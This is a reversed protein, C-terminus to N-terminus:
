HSNSSSSSSTYMGIYDTGLRELCKDVAHFVHKRSLGMQNVLPGDNVSPPRSEDDMVPNFIKSLIVVKQRPIEYRRLFEGIIEESKGNSYTDATDWTNIGADYAAKLLRIGAEADLTWPSGEWTPSGFIM